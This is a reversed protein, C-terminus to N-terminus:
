MGPSIALEPFRSVQCSLSVSILAAQKVSTEHLGYVLILQSTCVLAVKSLTRLHLSVSSM